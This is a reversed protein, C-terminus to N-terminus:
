ARSSHLSRLTLRLLGLAPLAGVAVIVLSPLAAEALKEDTAQYFVYTALTEFNFPRLILTLPLEKIVDVLVLLLGSLLGTRILPLHIRLLRRGGGAGLSQASEDLRLPVRQWAGALPQYAVSLFRTLYAFLLMLFLNSVFLGPDWGLLPLFLRESLLRNFSTFPGLVGLAIVAGPIAYGLTAFRALWGGRGGLLRQKWLLLLASGACLLSASGALLLSNRLSRWFGAPAHLGAEGLWALLRLLPIGLGLLLPLLCALMALLGRWGGLPEAEAYSARAEPVGQRRRLWGEASSLAFVALLLLGALRLAVPLNEMDFWARFIGLSFTSVGAYKAAGYDNLVEMAVLLLGGALAPRAMPLAVRGFLAWPGAGLSRAAELASRSQLSFSARLSLYVYPYLVSGLILMLGPLNMLDLQLSERGLLRGLLGGYNFFGAYAYAAIYGPLALPLMLAGALWGRGPFRYRSVLWAAPAGLLAALACAGICLLFTDLAYAPLLHRALHAWDEGGPRLLAGLLSFLPLGIALALLLAPWQQGLFRVAAQLGPRFFSPSSAQM